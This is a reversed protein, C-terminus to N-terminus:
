LYTNVAKSASDTLQLECRESPRLQLQEGSAVRLRIKPRYKTISVLHQHVSSVCGSTAGSGACLRLVVSVDSQKTRLSGADIRGEHIDYVEEVPMSSARTALFLVLMTILHVAPWKRVVSTVASIVNGLAARIQNQVSGQSGRRSNGESAGCLALAGMGEAVM